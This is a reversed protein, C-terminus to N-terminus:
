RLKKAPNGAWIEGHPVNKVVSSGLGILAGAGVIIRNRVTAGLKIKAGDLVVAYGGLIVGSCIECNNGIKVDHGLHSHVMIINNDGIKTCSEDYPRQITVLESIVNNNGIEVWGKFENQKVGRIEGNSGIVSYAGIINGKGMKVNDCIIATKHVYNGDINIWDSNYFNDNM